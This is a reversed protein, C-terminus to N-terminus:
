GDQRRAFREDRSPPAYRDLHLAPLPDARSDPHADPHPDPRPDPRRERRRDLKPVLSILQELVQHEDVFTVDLQPILLPGLSELRRRMTPTLKVADKETTVFGDAEVRRAQDLLHDIHRATYRHHDRFTIASALVVSAETLMTLFSEPRAIGCFAFPRKPPLASSAPFRLSRRIHWVPPAGTERTLVAILDELSDAEDERLVIVGAQLLASLPERLDGAPLLADNVDKRTLLVIDLDRALQRHQFGDDLLHVIPADQSDKEALLGAQHRDAGVYVPLGSSQALLLPEDGFRAPSGTPDVREVLKESRKYGRTLLRVSYRRQHLIRALALVVPTKGAGGASISGISLVPNRLSRRRERHHAQFWRELRLGAAYLPVLPLLLPRRATM